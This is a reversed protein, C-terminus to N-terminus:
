SCSSKYDWGFTVGDCRLVQFGDCPDAANDLVFTETAYGQVSDWAIVRVNQDTM